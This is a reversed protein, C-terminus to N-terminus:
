DPSNKGYELLEEFWKLYSAEDPTGPSDMWRLYVAALADADRPARAM